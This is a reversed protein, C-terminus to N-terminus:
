FKRRFPCGATPSPMTRWDPAFVSSTASRALASASASRALRGSPMVIVMPESSESNMLRAISRTHCVSASAAIKTTSTMKRNRPLQRAVTIGATVTGM